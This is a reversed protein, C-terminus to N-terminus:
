RRRGNDARIVAHADCCLRGSGGSRKAHPVHHVHACEIVFTAADGGRPFPPSHWATGDFKTITQGLFM